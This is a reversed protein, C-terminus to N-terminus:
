LIVIEEKIIPSIIIDEKTIPLGITVEYIYNYSGCTASGITESSAIGTLVITASVAASGITESSAIGTLVITASVAASGITESSAIGTLVITALVATSGITESSAIGTLVITASIAASGITESSAIGTLVITASIAASGITESSAIGGVNILEIDGGAIYEFAGCTPTSANFTNGIFDLTVYRTACGLYIAGTNLPTFDGTLYDVFENSWDAGNPHFHNTGDGDDSCCYDITVTSGTAVYFDDGTNFVCCNKINYTGSTGSRFGYGTGDTNYLVCNYIDGTNGACYISRGTSASQMISSTLLFTIDTDILNVCSCISSAGARLFCGHIYIYMTGVGSACVLIDDNTSDGNNLQIQLDYIYIYNVVIALCDTNSGVMRYITDDWEASTKQPCSIKIYRTSDTTWGNWACNTTDATGATAYCLVNAWIDGTVLNRQEGSELLSMSAEANALSSGDGAGGVVDTNIYLDLQTAM